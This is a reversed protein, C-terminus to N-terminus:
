NLEVDALFPNNAFLSHTFVYSSRKVSCLGCEHEGFEVGDFAKLIEKAEKSEVEEYNSEFGSADDDLIVNRWNNGDFYNWALAQVHSENEERWSEVFKQVKEDKSDTFDDIDSEEEVEFGAAKLDSFFKERLDTCYGNELCYDGANEEGIQQGFEDYCKSLNQWEFDDQDAIFMRDDESDKKRIVILGNNKM